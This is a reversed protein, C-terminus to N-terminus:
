KREEKLMKTSIIDIIYLIKPLYKDIDKKKTQLLVSSLFLVSDIYLANILKKYDNYKSIFKLLEDLYQETKNNM